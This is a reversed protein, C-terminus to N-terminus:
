TRPVRKCIAVQYYKTDGSLIQGEYSKFIRVAEKESTAYHLLVKEGTSSVIGWVTHTYQEKKM